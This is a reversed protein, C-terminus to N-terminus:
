TLIECELGHSSLIEIITDVCLQKSEVRLVKDCDELDFSVKSSAFRGRLISALQEAMERHQVNTKFVEVM